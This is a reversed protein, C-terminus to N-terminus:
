PSEGTKEASEDGESETFTYTIHVRTGLLPKGNLRPPRVLFQWSAERMVRAMGTGRPEESVEHCDEVHYNEIMRCEIEARRGTSQGPRLYNEFVTKPPKRYWEVNYFSTGGAGVGGGHGGGGASANANGASAASHINSIDGAAMEAHSTHIFGEPWDVKNPNNVEIHPLLKPAATAQTHQPTTAAKAAAHAKTPNPQKEGPPPGLNMATLVTAATRTVERIAAMSLLALLLLACMGLSLLAAVYRSNRPAGYRSPGEPGPGPTQDPTTLSSEM